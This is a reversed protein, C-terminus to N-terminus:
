NHTIKKNPSGKFRHKCNEKDRVENRDQRRAKNGSELNQHLVSKNYKLLAVKQIQKVLNQSPTKDALSVKNEEQSKQHQKLHAFLKDAEKFTAPCLGCAEINM